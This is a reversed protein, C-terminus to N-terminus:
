SAEDLREHLDAVEQFLAELKEEMIRMGVSQAELHTELLTRHSRELTEASTWDPTM